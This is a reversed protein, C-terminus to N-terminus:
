GLRYFRTANGNFLENREDTSFGETINSFAMFISSYDSFLKDVPFNSAFMCRDTGFIDITELVLPRISEETWDHDLMGLGSIKVYMRPSRALQRMGDRWVQLSDEDRDIPFGTHNIAIDADPFDSALQAAEVMQNPWIQLDFSLGLSTLLAFGKRWEPSSLYGGHEAFARNPIVDWNLTQRIGRFNAYQLHSELMEGVKPSSLDAYGVIGQPFGYSDSQEQLWATELVPDSPDFEAQVHVSKVLPLDGADALFDAVLYNTCISEYEGIFTEMRPQAHLWVHYHKDLDWLHHHADVIDPMDAM